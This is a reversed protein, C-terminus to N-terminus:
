RPSTRSRTEYCTPRWVQPAYKKNEFKPILIDAKIRAHDAPAYKCDIAISVNTGPQALLYDLTSPTDRAAADRQPIETIPATAADVTFPGETPPHPPVVIELILVQLSLSDLM